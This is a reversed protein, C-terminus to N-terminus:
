NGWTKSLNERDKRDLYRQMDDAQGQAAKDSIAYKAEADVAGPTSNILDIYDKGIIVSGQPAKVKALANVSGMQKFRKISPLWGSAVFGAAFIRRAKEQPQTRKGSRVKMESPRLGKIRGITARGVIQAERYLAFAFRQARHALVEARTKSSALEYANLAKQFNALGTSHFEVSM